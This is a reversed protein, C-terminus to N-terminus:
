FKRVSEVFTPDQLAVIAAYAIMGQQMQHQEAAAGTRLESSVVSGDAFIPSLSSATRMYTAFASASDILASALVPPGVPIEPEPPPPAPAPPPEPRKKAEAPGAMGGVAMAAALALCFGRILTPAKPNM